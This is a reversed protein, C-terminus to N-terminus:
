AFLLLLKGNKKSRLPPLGSGMGGSGCVCDPEYGRSTMWGRLQLSGSVPAGADESENTGRTRGLHSTGEPQFEM